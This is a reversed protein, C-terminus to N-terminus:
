VEGRLVTIEFDTSEEDSKILELKAFQEELTKRCISLGLGSGSSKTTFGEEFIKAKVESAMPRGTNSVIIKVKDDQVKTDLIIEGEKEDEDGISEVANKILNILATTFKNEDVLIDVVQLNKVGFKINKGQAYIRALMMSSLVLNKLNHSKLDNSRLSKFDLLLNGCMQLSKKICERANFISKKVNEDSYKVNATQKEIITSYLNCISFLNRMEHVIYNSKALLFELRSDSDSPSEMSDKELQSILMEQNVESLNGIIKRISSSLLSNDRRDPRWQEDYKQLDITSNSNIIDFPESLNKSNHLIYFQAQNEIECEDYDFILAAGYRDSLVFVFETNDWINDKLINEFKDNIPTQSFDYVISDSFELRKITSDFSEKSKENLRFLVINETHNEIVPEVIAKFLGKITSSDCPNNEQIYILDKLRNKQLM